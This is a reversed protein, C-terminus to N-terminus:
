GNQKVKKRAEAYCSRSCFKRHSNGYSEFVIGCHQCVLHYYAKRKLESDNEKWWMMRCHDSCYRKVRKHPTQILPKGCQRCLGRHDAVATKSLPNRYCFVKITNRSIGLKEAIQKQSLGDLRYEQIQSRELDTM